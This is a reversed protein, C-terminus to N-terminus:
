FDLSVSILLFSDDTITKKNKDLVLLKCTDAPKAPQQAILNKPLNFNYSKLNFEKKM